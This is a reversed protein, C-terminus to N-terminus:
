GCIDEAPWCCYGGWAAMIDMGPGLPGTTEPCATLPGTDPGIVDIGFTEADAGTLLPCPSEIYSGIAADLTGIGAWFPDTDPGEIFVLM